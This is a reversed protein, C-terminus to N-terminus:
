PISGLAPARVNTLLAWASCCNRSEPDHNMGACGIGTKGIAWTWSSCLSCLLVSSEMQSLQNGADYFGLPGVVHWASHLFSHILFLTFCPLFLGLVRTFMPSLTELLSHNALGTALKTRWGRSLWSGRLTEPSIRSVGLAAQLTQEVEDRGHLNQWPGCAPKARSQVQSCEAGGGGLRTSVGKYRAM